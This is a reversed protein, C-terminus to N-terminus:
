ADLQEEIIVSSVMNAKEKDKVKFTTIHKMRTRRKRRARQIIRRTRAKAMNVSGNREGGVKRKIEENFFSCKVDDFTPNPNNLLQIVM